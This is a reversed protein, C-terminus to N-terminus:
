QACIGLYLPKLPQPACAYNGLTMHFRGPGPISGMDRACALLNKVAPGSSLALTSTKLKLSM